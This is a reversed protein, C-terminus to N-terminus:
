ELGVAHDLCYMSGVMIIMGHGCRHPEQPRSAGEPGFYVVLRRKHGIDSSNLCNRAELFVLQKAGARTRTRANTGRYAPMAQLM